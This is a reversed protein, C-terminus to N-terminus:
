DQRKENSGYCVEANEDRRSGDRRSTEKHSGSNELGYVM